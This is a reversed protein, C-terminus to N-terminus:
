TFTVYLKFMANAAGLDAQRPLCRRRNVGGFQRSILLRGIRGNGDLFPHIAEFQYHILGLRVLPPLRSLTHLVKEFTDLTDHM